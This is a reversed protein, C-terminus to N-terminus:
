QQQQGAPKEQSVDEEQTTDTPNSAPSLNVPVRHEDGGDIAELGERQRIENISLIGNLAAIQYSEMRSKLDGRLLSDFDFAIDFREREDDFLLVRELEQEIKTALGQLTNTVYMIMSQEVNSYVGSSVPLGVLWPPVAFVRCIQEASWRQTEILQSEEPSITLPQFTCGEELVAVRHHNDSGSYAAQWSQSIRLAAEPSLRNTMQIVGGLNTGQKFYLAGHRQAALALGLVDQSCAIPSVGTIGGDLSINRIHAVNEITEFYTESGLMTNTIAYYITGREDLFTQVREPILPLIRKVSGDNGRDMYLYSNGRLQLSTILYSVLEFTTQWGNPKRLLGVLPHKDAVKWGKSTKRRINIPLKALDESLRRVCAYVTGAQLASIPSVPIGTNSPFMGLSYALSPSPTSLSSKEVVPVIPQTMVPEHRVAIPAPAKFADILRNFLGM